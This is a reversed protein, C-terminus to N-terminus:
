ASLPSPTRLTRLARLALALHLSSEAGLFLAGAALPWSGTLGALASLFLALSALDLAGRAAAFSLRGRDLPPLPVARPPEKGAGLGRLTIAVRVLEHIVLGGMVPTFVHLWRGLLIAMAGGLLRLLLVRGLRTWLGAVAARGLRRRTRAHARLQAALVAFRIAIVALWALALVLAASATPEPM